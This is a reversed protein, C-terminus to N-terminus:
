IIIKIIRVSRGMNTKGGAQLVIFLNPGVKISRIEKGDQRLDQSDNQRHVPCNSMEQLMKAYNLKIEYIKAVKVM